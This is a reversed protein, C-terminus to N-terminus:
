WLFPKKCALLGASLWAIRGALFAPPFTLPPDLVPLTRPFNQFFATPAFAMSQPLPLWALLFVGAALAWVLGPHIRGLRWGLGACFVAPPLLVMLAPLVLAAGDRWGFLRACFLAYLGLVTLCLLLTGTLAAACRVAAYARPDAPTAQTLVRARREQGSTFVSLCFLEGACVLPLLRSLYLGFSWPSFPATNAAGLIIEGTLLTWAWAVTVALICFFVKNWLLRRLEYRFINRM